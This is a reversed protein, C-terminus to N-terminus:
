MMNRSCIFTGRNIVICMAIKITIYNNKQSIGICLITFWLILRNEMIYINMCIVLNTLVLYSELNLLPTYKVMIDFIAIQEITIPNFKLTSGDAIGLRMLGTMIM